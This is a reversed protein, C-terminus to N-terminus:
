FPVDAADIDADQKGREALAKMADIFPSAQMRGLAAVQTVGYLQEAYEDVATRVMGADSGLRYAYNIQKESIGGTVPSNGAVASPGNNAAQAPRSANGVAAGPRQPNPSTTPANARIPTPQQGNHLPSEKDYLSNGFQNGFTRAARKMADTVAAKIATELAENSGGAPIAAGADTRTVFGGAGDAVTLKVLAQLVGSPLHTLSIVDQSWGGFGFIRNLADIADYGEIYSLQPGGRGQNRHSVRSVDLEAALQENIAASFMLARERIVCFRFMGGM